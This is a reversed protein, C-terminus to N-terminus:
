DLDVSPDSWQKFNEWLPGYLVRLEGGQQRALVADLWGDGDLDHLALATAYDGRKWRVHRSVM